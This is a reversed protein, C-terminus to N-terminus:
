QITAGSRRLCGPTRGFFRGFERTMHSQDAYGATWAIGSLPRDSGCVLQAAVRARRRRAFVGPTEGYATRFARILHDPHVGVEEALDVVSPVGRPMDALREYAELLWRPRGPDGAHEAEVFSLAVLELVENEVDRVIQAQEPGPDRALAHALIAAIRLSDAARVRRPDHPLQLGALANWRLEVLISRAGEAGYRNGHIVFAPKFLLSGPECQFAKGDTEEVLHGHVVFTFTPNAHAHAELRTGASHTTVVLRVRDFTREIDVAGQTISALQM